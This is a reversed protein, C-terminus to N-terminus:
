GGAGAAMESVASLGAEGTRVRYADDVPLVFIKGDGASKTQNTDILIKVVAKVAEDPVVLTILRKAILRPGTALSQLVEPPPAEGSAVSKMVEYDVPRSGRGMVRAATLSPFGAGALAAKTANIKNMRIVAMVEKM